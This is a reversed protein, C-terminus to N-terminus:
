AGYPLRGCVPCKTGNRSFMAHQMREACKAPAEQAVEAVPAPEPVPAPEGEGFVIAPRVSPDISARAFDTPPISIRGTVRRKGRFFRGRVGCPCAWEPSATPGAGGLTIRFSPPQLVLKTECAPCDFIIRARDLPMTREM